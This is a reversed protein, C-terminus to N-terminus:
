RFSQSYFDHNGTVFFVGDRARLERFPAVEAELHERRGDVLDGTVAVLDAGLANVRETLTRAFRRDLPPGIHIDSIQAIRYGDLAQPWRALQIEVRVDRPGRRAERLAVSAAMLVLGAVAAARLGAVDGPTSTGESAALAVGEGLLLVLESAGLLLLLWFLLGM